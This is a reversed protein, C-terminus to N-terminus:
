CGLTALTRLVQGLWQVDVPGRVRVRHGSTLVLEIEGRRSETDDAPGPSAVVRVPV